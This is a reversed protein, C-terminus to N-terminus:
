AIGREERLSLDVSAHITDGDELGASGVHRHISTGNHQRLGAQGRWRLENGILLDGEIDWVWITHSRHEQVKRFEM